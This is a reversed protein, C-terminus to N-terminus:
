LYPFKSLTEHSKLPLALSKLRMVWFEKEKLMNLTETFPFQGWLCICGWALLPYGLFLPLVQSIPQGRINLSYRSCSLCKNKIYM